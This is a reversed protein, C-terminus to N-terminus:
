ENYNSMVWKGIEQHAVNLDGCFILPKKKDLNVLYEHFAVDWEKRYPLRICHPSFTHLWVVTLFM